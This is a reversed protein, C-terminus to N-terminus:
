FDCYLPKSKWTTLTTHDIYLFGPFIKWNSPVIKSILTLLFILVGNVRNQCVTNSGIMIRKQQIVTIFILHSITSSFWLLIIEKLSTNEYVLRM